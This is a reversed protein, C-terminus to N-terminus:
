PREPLTTFYHNKQNKQNEQNQNKQNKQNQKKQHKRKRQKKSKKPKPNNVRKKPKPSDDNIATHQKPKRSRLLVAFVCPVTKPRLGHQTILMAIWIWVRSTSTIVWSGGHMM